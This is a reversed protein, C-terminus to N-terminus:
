WKVPAEKQGPSRRWEAPMVEDLYVKIHDIGTSLSEGVHPRLYQEYLGLLSSRAQDVIPAAESGLGSSLLSSLPNVQSDSATFNWGMSLTKFILKIVWKLNDNNYKKIM